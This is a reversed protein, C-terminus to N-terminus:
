RENNEKFIKQLADAKYCKGGIIMINEWLQRQSEGKLVRGDSFTVTDEFRDYKADEVLSSALLKKLEDKSIKLERCLKDTDLTYQSKFNIIDSM